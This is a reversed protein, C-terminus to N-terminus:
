KTSVPLFSWLEQYAFKLDYDDYYTDYTSYAIMALGSNKIGIAAYKGADKYQGGHDVSVCGWDPLVGTCTSWPPETVPGAVKLGLPALDEHADSYAIMPNNESDVALSISAYILGAGMNDIYFCAFSNSPGCNGSMVPGQAYKLRGNTTDYYAIRLLDESNQAAHLSSFLGVDASAPDDLTICTWANGTGCDGIGSYYAYKLANAFADYYSVFVNGSWDFDLSPYLGTDFISSDV